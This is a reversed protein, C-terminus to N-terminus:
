QFVETVVYQMPMTHPPTLHIQRLVETNVDTQDKNRFSRWYVPRSPSLRSPSHLNQRSPLALFSVVHNMAM